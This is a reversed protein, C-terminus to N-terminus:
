SIRTDYTAQRRSEKGEISQSLECGALVHGFVSILSFTRPTRAKQSTSSSSDTTLTKRVPSARFGAPSGVGPHGRIGSGEPPGGASIGAHRGDQVSRRALPLLPRGRARCPSQRGSLVMRVPSCSSWRHFQVAAGSIRGHRFRIKKERRQGGGNTRCYGSPGRFSEPLLRTPTNHKYLSQAHQEPMLRTRASWPTPATPPRLHPRARSHAPQHAPRRTQTSRVM